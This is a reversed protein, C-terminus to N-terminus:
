KISARAAAILTQPDIRVMYSPNVYEFKIKGETDLLFVSPAPLSHHKKGSAEELDINYQKLLKLTDLDVRYAIGFARAVKMESDSLITYKIENTKTIAQLEEPKDPSVAIV